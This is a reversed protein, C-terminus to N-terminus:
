EPVRLFHLSQVVLVGVLDALQLPHQLLALHHVALELLLEQHRPLALLFHAVHEVAPLLVRAFALLIEVLDAFAEVGLERLALLDNALLSLRPLTRFFRALERLLRQLHHHPLHLFHSLLLLRPSRHFLLDPARQVRAVLAQHFGALLSLHLACLRLSCDPGELGPMAVEELGCGLGLLRRGLALLGEDDSWVIGAACASTQARCGSM